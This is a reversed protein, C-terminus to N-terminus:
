VAEPASDSLFEGRNQMSEASETALLKLVRRLEEGLTYRQQQVLIIGAHKRGSEVCEGHLRYFDAVNFTCLVRGESIAFDLHEEDTRGIMRADLATIVDIGRARLARVLHQDM